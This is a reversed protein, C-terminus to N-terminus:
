NQFRLLQTKLFSIEASIKQNEIQQKLKESKYWESVLKVSTGIAFLLIFIVFQFKRAGGKPGEPFEPRDINLGEILKPALLSEAIYSSFVIFVISTFVYLLVKNNLLLKPVLLSFNLYFITVEFVFRFAFIFDPFFNFRM